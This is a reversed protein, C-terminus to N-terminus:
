ARGSEVVLLVGGQLRVSAPTSAVENSLGRSRGFRLTDGSLAWRLGRTTVGTADTGLPLLSVLDGATGRLTLEDGAHLATVTTRAHVIRLDVDRLAPDAILLLNAIAHDRREGGLAGVLVVEDAGVALCREIALEMDTAEKDRPHSEVQTGLDVLQTVVEEDLSDLDGVLLDPQRGAASLALAGGDAAVVLQADDLLALDSPGVEGGAVVVAKM